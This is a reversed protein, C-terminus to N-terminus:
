ISPSYQVRRPTEIQTDGNDTHKLIAISGKSVQETVDVAPASNREITYHEAEAGVSYVTGDLLYGESPAWSGSPGTTM